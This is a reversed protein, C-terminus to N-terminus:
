SQANTNLRRRWGPRRRWGLGFCPPEQSERESDCSQSTAGAQGAQGDLGTQGACHQGNCGPAPVSGCMWAGNECTAPGLPDEPCCQQLDGSLTGFCDPANGECYM